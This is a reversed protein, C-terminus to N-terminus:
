STGLAADHWNDTHQTRMFIAIETSGGL